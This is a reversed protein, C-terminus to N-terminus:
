WLRGPTFMASAILSQWMKELTMSKKSLHTKLCYQCFSLCKIQIWSYSIFFVDAKCTHCKHHINCIIQLSYIKKNKTPRIVGFKLQWQTFDHFSVQQNSWAHAYNEHQQLHLLTCFIWSTKPSSASFATRIWSTKCWTMFGCHQRTVLIVIKEVLHM